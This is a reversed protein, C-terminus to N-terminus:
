SGRRHTGTWGSLLICTTKAGAQLAHLGLEHQPEAQKGM